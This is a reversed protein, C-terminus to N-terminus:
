LNKLLKAVRERGIELIFSALKPGKDKNVIVQYAIRFFDKIPFENNRCLIYIEEHLDKDTWEKEDLKSALQHL